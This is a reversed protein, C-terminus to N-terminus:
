RCCLDGGVRVPHGADDFGTLLIRYTFRTLSSSVWLEPFLAREHPHIVITVPEELQDQV